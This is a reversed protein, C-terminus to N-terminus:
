ACAIGLKPLPVAPFVRVTFFSESFVVICHDLETKSDESKCSWERAYYPNDAGLSLPRSRFYQSSASSITRAATSAHARMVM